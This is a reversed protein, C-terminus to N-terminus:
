GALFVKGDRVDFAVAELHRGVCPGAVCRGEDLTFRAGHATCIILESDRDLFTDPLWNLPLGAHPCRNKYLAVGDAHRVAFIDGSALSFGKSGQLPIDEITCLEIM